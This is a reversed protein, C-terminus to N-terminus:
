GIEPRSLKNPGTRPSYFARQEKQEITPKDAYGEILTECCGIKQDETRSLEEHIPAHINECQEVNFVSFYRAVFVKDKEGNLKNEKELVSWYTVPTAKEEKKVSGGHSQAQKFSLWYPSSYNQMSLLMVNAGRYDKGTILNKPFPSVGKYCKWPKRWPAVEGKEISDIVRQTVIEYINM